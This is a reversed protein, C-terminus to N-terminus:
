RRQTIFYIWVCRPVWEFNKAESNYPAVTGYANTNSVAFGNIETYDNNPNAVKIRAQNRILTIGKSMETKLDNADTGEVRQWYVMKGSSAILRDMLDKENLGGVATEDFDNLNQNAVFHIIRTYESVTASFTGEFVNIGSPDGKPELTAKSTSIFAGNSGFCFLRLDQIGGGDSDVDRAIVKQMDPINVQFELAMYGDPTVSSGNTAIDDQCAIAALLFVAAIAKHLIRKIM